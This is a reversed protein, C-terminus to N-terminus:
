AIFTEVDLETLAYVRIEHANYSESLWRLVYWRATEEDCLVPEADGALNLVAYRM